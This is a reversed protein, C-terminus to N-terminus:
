TIAVQSCDVFVWRRGERRATCHEVSIFPAHGEAKLSVTLEATATARTTDYRPRAISFGATSAKGGIHPPALGHDQWACDQIYTGGKESDWEPFFDQAPPTRENWGLKARGIAVVIACDDASAHEVLPKLEAAFVLALAIALM